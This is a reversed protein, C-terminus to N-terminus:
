KIRDFFLKQNGIKMNQCRILHYEIINKFNAEVSLEKNICASLFDLYGDDLVDIEMKRLELNTGLSVIMKPFGNLMILVFDYSRCVIPNKSGM